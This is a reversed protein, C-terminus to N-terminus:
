EEIRVRLGQVWYKYENTYYVYATSAMGTYTGPVEAKLDLNVTKREKPNFSRYYLVLNDNIIEYFDFVEQEHMEKLQWAQLSMGGPIGIIAVSM